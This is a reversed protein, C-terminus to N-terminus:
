TGPNRVTLMISYEYSTSFVEGSCATGPEGCTECPVDTVVLSSGLIYVGRSFFGGRFAYWWTLGWQLDAGSGGDEAEVPQVSVYSPCEPIGNVTLQYAYHDRIFECLANESLDALCAAPLSIAHAVYSPTESTIEATCTTNEESVAIQVGEPAPIENVYYSMDITEGNPCVYPLTVAGCLAGLSTFLVISALVAASKLM